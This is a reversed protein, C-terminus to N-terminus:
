PGSSLHSGARLGILAEAELRRGFFDAYFLNINPNIGEELRKVGAEYWHHATERDGLQWWTMAVFFFCDAQCVGGSCSERSKRFADLAGHWDETRYLVM